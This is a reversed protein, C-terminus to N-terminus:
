HFGIKIAHSDQKKISNNFDLYKGLQTSITELRRKPMTWKQGPIADILVDGPRLLTVPNLTCELSSNEGPADYAPGGLEVPAIKEWQEALWEARPKDQRFAVSIHVQDIGKRKDFLGPSNTFPLKDNPTANTRRPFVRAIKM